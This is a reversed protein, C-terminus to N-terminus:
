DINWYALPDGDFITDIDDDSYGEVDQAWSGAYHGHVWCDDDVFQQVEIFDAEYEEILESEAASDKEKTQVSSPRHWPLNDEINLFLKNAQRQAEFEKPVIFQPYLASIENMAFDDIYFCLRSSMPTLHAMCWYVYGPNMDLVDSLSLDKYRGFTFLSGITRFRESKM